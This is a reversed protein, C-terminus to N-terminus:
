EMRNPLFASPSAFPLSTAREVERQIIESGCLPALEVHLRANLDSYTDFDVDDENPGFCSDLQTVIDQIHELAEPAAGREAALRAATGEMVGRLEISDVVDAYGFRRVVFGGNPLRDLLGEEALRSLAERVPTRSIQLTEALSVEFLRTGGALEGNIIKERLEIVARRGHTAVETPKMPRNRNRRMRYCGVAAARLGAARRRREVSLQTYMLKYFCACHT